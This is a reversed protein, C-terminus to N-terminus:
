VHLPIERYSTPNKIEFFYTIRLRSCKLLTFHSNLKFKKDRNILGKETRTVKDTLWPSYLLLLSLLSKALIKFKSNCFFEQMIKGPNKQCEVKFLFVHMIKKNKEEVFSYILYSIHEYRLERHLEYHWNKNLTEVALQCCLRSFLMFVVQCQTLWKILGELSVQMWMWMFHRYAELSCKMEWCVLLFRM